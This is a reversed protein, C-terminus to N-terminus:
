PTKPTSVEDRVLSTAHKSMDHARDHAGETQALQIEAAALDRKTQNDMQSKALQMKAQDLSLRQSTSYELLAIERKLELEQIKFQGNQQAVLVEKDARAMEAHSRSAEVREASMARIHEQEIRATAQAM